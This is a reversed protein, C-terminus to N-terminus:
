KWHYGNQRLVGRWGLLVKGKRVPRTNKAYYIKAYVHTDPYKTAYKALARYMHIQLIGREDAIAKLDSTGMFIQQTLTKSIYDDLLDNNVDVVFRRWKAIYTFISAIVIALIILGMLEGISYTTFERIFLLAVFVVFVSIVFRFVADVVIKQIILYEILLVVVGSIISVLINSVASQFEISM